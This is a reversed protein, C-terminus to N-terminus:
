VSGANEPNEQDKQLDEPNSESSNDSDDFYDDVQKQLSKDVAVKNLTKMMSDVRYTLYLTNKQITVLLQHIKQLDPKDSKFIFNTM